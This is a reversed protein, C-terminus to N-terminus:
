AEKIFVARGTTGSIISQFGSAGTQYERISVEGKSEMNKVWEALQIVSSESHGLVALCDHKHYAEVGDPPYCAECALEPIPDWDKHSMPNHDIWNDFYRFGVCPRGFGCEGNDDFIVSHKKAFAKCIKHTTTYKM